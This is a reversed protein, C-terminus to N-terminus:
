AVAPEAAAMPFDATEREDFFAVTGEDQDFEFQVHAQGAKVSM